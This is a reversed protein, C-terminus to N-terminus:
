LVHKRETRGKKGVPQYIGMQILRNRVTTTTLGVEAAIVTMARTPYPAYPILEEFRKRIVEAQEDYLRENETRM